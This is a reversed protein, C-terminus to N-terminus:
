LALEIVQVAATLGEDVTDLTGGVDHQGALDGNNSTVTIDALAASM